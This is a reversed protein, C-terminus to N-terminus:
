HETQDPHHAEYAALCIAAALQKDIQGGICPRDDGEATCNWTGAVADINYLSHTEPHVFLWNAVVPVLDEPQKVVCVQKSM